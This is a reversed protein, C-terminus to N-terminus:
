GLGQSLLNYKEKERTTDIICLTENLLAAQEKIWRVHASVKNWLGNTSGAVKYINGKHCSYGGGYVTGILVPVKTFKNNRYVDKYM